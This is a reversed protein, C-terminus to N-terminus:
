QMWLRKVSLSARMSCLSACPRASTPTRASPRLSLTAPAKSHPRSLPSKGKQISSRPQTIASPSAPLRSRGSATPSPSWAATALSPPRPGVSPATPCTCIKSNLSTSPPRSGPRSNTPLSARSSSPASSPRAAASSTEFTASSRKSTAFRSRTSTAPPRKAIALLSPSPAAKTSYVSLPPSPTPPLNLSQAIHLLIELSLTKADAM